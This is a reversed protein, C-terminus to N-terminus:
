KYINFYKYPDKNELLSSSLIHYKDWVSCINWTSIDGSFPSHDFMRSMTKVNSVDWDSIDDNFESFAFMYNMNTVNSVNWKSIDGNFRSNDFMQRMSKVNSVDWESIDGDFRSNYFLMSMDTIQSVDIDNLDCDYGFESIREKIIQKLHSSDRAVVKKDYEKAIKKRGERVRGLLNDEEWTRM